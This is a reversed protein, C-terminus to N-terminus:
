VRVPRRGLTAAALAATSFAAQLNYGGTDGDIDLVEGAFFLGPVLTSEMMKPNVEDLAVGGATAMAVSFGGLRSVTFPLGGLVGALRRRGDRDLRAGTTDEPLGAEALLRRLLREPLGLPALVSRLRAAGREDCLRILRADLAEPPVEQTFAVLLQDGPRIDRSLDLVGPGSLGIHTFLLDGRGAAVQRGDRVVRLGAGPVSVGALDAFAYPEPEIPALAPRPEEVTHGFARALRYGDGTSGTGPYSAGGTALVVAGAYWSAGDTQVAFGEDTREVSRVRAGCVIQVGRESCATRLVGLVDGARHSVPFVKGDPRTELPLGREAFWLALAKNSFARLAHRLFRGHDGYRGLFAALDGEHTLNAQGSGTLLLKRGPEPMRELVVVTLDAPLRAACFLGAPGGGVVVVDAPESTM